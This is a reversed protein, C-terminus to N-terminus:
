ADDDRSRRVHAEADRLTLVAADGAQARRKIKGLIDVFQAHVGPADIDARYNTHFNIVLLGGVRKVQTILHDFFDALRPRAPGHALDMLAMPMEYLARGRHALPRYPWSTGTKFGQHPPHFGVNSSVTFGADVMHQWAQPFQATLYHYRISSVRCGAANELRVRQRELGLADGSEYRAAHLGIEWGGDRLSRLTQKVRPDDVRYLRGEKSLAKQLALFFFTSRVGHEAELAQWHSIDAVPDHNAFWWRTWQLGRRVIEAARVAQARLLARATSAAWGAARLGFYSLGDFLDVDHTIAIAMPAGGPWPRLAHHGRIKDLAFDFHPDVIGVGDISLSPSEPAARGPNFRLLQDIQPEILRGDPRHGEFRDEILANVFAFRETRTLSTM